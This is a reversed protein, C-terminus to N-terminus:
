SKLVMKIGIIIVYILIAAVAIKVIDLFEIEGKKNKLMKVDSKLEQWDKLYNFRELLDKKIIEIDEEMKNLLKYNINIKNIYFVVIALIVSVISITLFILKAQPPIFLALEFLALSLISFFISWFDIRWKEEM